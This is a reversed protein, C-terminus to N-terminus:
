SVKESLYKKIKNNLNELYAQGQATLEPEGDPHLKGLEALIFKEIVLIKRLLTVVERSAPAQTKENLREHCTKVAFRLAESLNDHAQKKQIDQLCRLTDPPLVFSRRIGKEAM